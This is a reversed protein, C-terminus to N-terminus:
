CESPLLGLKARFLLGAPKHMYDWCYLVAINKCECGKEDSNDGCDDVGDCRDRRSECRGNDCTLEWRRCTYPTGTEDPNQLTLLM